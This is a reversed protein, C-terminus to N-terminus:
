LDQAPNRGDLLTVNALIRGFYKEGAIQRLRIETIRIDPNGTGPHADIGARRIEAYRSHMEPTDIGRIRM